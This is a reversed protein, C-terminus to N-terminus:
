DVKYDMQRESLKLVRDGAVKRGESVLRGRLHRRVADPRPMVDSGASSGAVPDANLLLAQTSLKTPPLGLAGWLQGMVIYLNCGRFGSTMPDLNKQEM